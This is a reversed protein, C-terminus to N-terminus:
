ALYPLYAIQGLACLPRVWLTATQVVGVVQGIHQVNVAVACVVVIGIQFPARTLTIVRHDNFM